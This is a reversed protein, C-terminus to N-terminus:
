GIDRVSWAWFILLPHVVILRVLGVWQPVCLGGDICSNVQIFYVHVPVFTLLMIIIGIAAYKRLAPMTLGVGFIIEVVGAALNIMDHAPLYPPILPLYFGPDLFHNLGAVIYFISQIYLSYKKM